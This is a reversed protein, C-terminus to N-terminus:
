GDARIKVAALLAMGATLIAAVTAVSRVGQMFAMRAVEILAAGQARDMMQASAIAAGLTGSAAELMEAALGPPAADALAVRYVATGISGLIAIGLAGGLESGTESMAAAVGANEPPAGGVILDTALTFVPSFGIAYITYATAVRYVSSGADVMALLLYGFTALVLGAAMVRGASFRRALRPTLMSGAVFVLSFPVGWLGAELPSLGIVLQMAQSLLLFVGLLTFSALSYIALAADFGPSRFLRLNVMPVALKHQRRLFLVGAAIGVVIAGLAIASMGEVACRKVGFITALVASLSLVVSAPDIPAVDPDRYEPLLLPGLALLLVMVPVGVLFVSGWWFYQLLVGGLVPGIAAGVSYSTIWIGIALRRQEADHFMNRILSLTSPALTAGAVGLVFRWLILWGASDAFAALVSAVGFAAAGILLLRRRGIRDGLMGMPILFGAVAFGYIDVIWLLQTASPALDASLSPVALHLVTLDMSYLMCPLAIVALGIWERRGARGISTVGM